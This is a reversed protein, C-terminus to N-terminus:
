GNLKAKVESLVIRANRISEAWTRMERKVDRIDTDRHDVYEARDSVDEELPLDELAKVLKDILAQQEDIHQTLIPLHKRLAVALEADAAKLVGLGTSWKGDRMAWLLGHDAMWAPVSDNMRRLEALEEKTLV